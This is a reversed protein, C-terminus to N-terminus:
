VADEVSQRALEAFWGGAAILETPTGHERVRGEDLVIIQDADKVMSFRHAIVLTTPRHRLHSLAQKVEGETAYDLNATAEDLVLIAPEDM